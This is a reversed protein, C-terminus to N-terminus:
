NETDAILLSSKGVDASRFFDPDVKDGFKWDLNFSFDCAKNKSSRVGTIVSSVKNNGITTWNTTVTEYPVIEDRDSLRFNTSQIPLGERFTVIRKTSAQVDGIDLWVYLWPSRHWGNSIPALQLDTGAPSRHWSSIPALWLRLDTGAM